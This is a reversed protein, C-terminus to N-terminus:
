SIFFSELCCSAGIEAALFWFPFSCSLIKKIGVVLCRCRLPFHVDLFDLKWFVFVCGFLSDVALFCKWFSM